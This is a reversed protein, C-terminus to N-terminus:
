AADIALQNATQVSVALEANVRSLDAEARARERQDYNNQVAIALYEAVELLTAAEHENWHYPQDVHFAVVGTYATPSRVPVALLARTKVDALHEVLPTLRDDCTVDEACLPECMWLSALYDPAVTLDTTTNPQELAGNQAVAYRLTARGNREVITYTVRLHAFTRGLLHITRGITDMLAAGSIMGASITNLLNLRTQREHLAHEVRLRETVDQAHGLVYAPEGAIDHRVNQYQWIREEGARTLVAFQGNVARAQAIQTLYAGFHRHAAPTMIDILNRGILEDPAYGLANAAARNVDLLTGDMSHSCILGHSQEILERYRREGDYFAAAIRDREAVVQELEAIKLRQELQVVVQRGLIQLAGLLEPALNRPVEDMVCLMGVAQGAPTTLPTGAYFRVNPEGIVLPSDAFRPDAQADPIVFLDDPQLIGHGCFSVDRPTESAAMGVRAKFWQRHTDVLSVLAIPTGCIMAALRTLDDFDREPPTDLVQYHQLAALRTPEDHPLPATQM